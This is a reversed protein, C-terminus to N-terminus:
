NTAGVLLMARGHGDDGLEESSSAKEMQSPPPTVCIESQNSKKHKKIFACILPLFVVSIGSLLLKNM